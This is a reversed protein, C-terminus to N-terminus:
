KMAKYLADCVKNLYQEYDEGKSLQPGNNMVVISAKTMQAIKQSTSTPQYSEQLIVRVKQARMKSIVKAVHGPNPSVGPKPEINDVRKLGLWDALYVMSAHYSVFVRQDEPLSKFRAQQEDSFKQLRKVLKEANEKYAAANDPDIAAFREGLAKTIAVASQASYLYHPNGQPHIDGASREVKATPVELAVIFQSADIATAAGLAVKSNRAGKQLAGLWGIELEMGNYVLVDARNLKLIYDPRADVYHPDERPSALVEVDVLEGGVTQVLSGLASMSAVVKLKAMAVGPFFLMFSLFVLFVSRLLM